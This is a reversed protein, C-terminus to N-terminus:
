HKHSFLHDKNSSVGFRTVGSAGCALVGGGTQPLWAIDYWLRVAPETVQGGISKSYIARQLNCDAFDGRLDLSCLGEESTAVAAMLAGQAKPWLGLRVVAGCASPLQVLPGSMIRADFLYLDGVLSGCILKQQHTGSIATLSHPMGIGGFGAAGTPKIGARLDWLLMQGDLSASAFTQPTMSSVDAVLDRHGSCAALPRPRSAAIDYIGVEFSGLLSTQGIALHSCSGHLFEGRSVKALSRWRPSHSEPPWPAQVQWVRDVSDRRLVGLGSGSPTNVAVAVVEDPQGVEAFTGPAFVSVINFGDELIGDSGQSAEDGQIHFRDLRLGADLDWEELQGGTCGLLVGLHLAGSTGSSPILTPLLSHVAVMIKKDPEQEPAGLDEVAELYSEGADQGTVGGASLSGRDEVSTREDSVVAHESSQADHVPSSSQLWTVVFALSPFSESVLRRSQELLRRTHLTRALAHCMQAPNVVEATAALLSLSWPLHKLAGGDGHTGLWSAVLEEVVAVLGSLQIWQRAALQQVAALLRQPIPSSADVALENALSSVVAVRIRELTAHDLVQLADIVEHPDRAEEWLLLRVAAANLAAASEDDQGTGLLRLLNRRFGNTASPHTCAAHLLEEVQQQLSASDRRM